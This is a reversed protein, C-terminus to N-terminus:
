CAFDSRTGLIDLPNRLRLGRESGRASRSKLHRSPTAFLGRRSRSESGDPGAALREPRDRTRIRHALTDGVCSNTYFIASGPHGTREYYEAMCTRRPKSAASPGSARPMARGSRAGETRLNRRRCARFAPVERPMPAVEVPADTNFSGSFLFSGTRTELVRVSPPSQAAAPAAISMGLLGVLAFRAVTRRSM